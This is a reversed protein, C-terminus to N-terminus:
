AMEKKKQEEQEKHSSDIQAFLANREDREKKPTGLLAGGFFGAFCVGIQIFTRRWGKPKLSASWKPLGPLM